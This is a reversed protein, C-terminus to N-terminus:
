RGALQANLRAITALATDLADLLAPVDTRAEAIFDADAAHLGTATDGYTAPVGAVTTERRVWEGAHVCGSPRDTGCAECAGYREASHGEEITDAWEDFTLGDSADGTDQRGVWSYGNYFWPGPTAADARARIAEIDVPLATETTDTM